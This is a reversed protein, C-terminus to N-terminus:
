DTPIETPPGIFVVQVLRPPLSGRITVHVEYPPLGLDHSADQMYREVAKTIEDTLAARPAHPTSNENGSTTGVLRAVVADEDEPPRGNEPHGEHIYAAYDGAQYADRILVTLEDPSM